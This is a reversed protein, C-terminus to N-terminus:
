NHMARKTACRLSQSRQRCIGGDVILTAPWLANPRRRLRVVTPAHAIKTDTVLPAAQAVAPM